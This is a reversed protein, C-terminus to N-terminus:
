TGSFWGINEQRIDLLILVLHSELDFNSESAM